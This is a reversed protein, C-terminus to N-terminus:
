IEFGQGVKISIFNKVYKEKFAKQAEYGSCHTPGVAEVGMKRFAEVIIQIIRKDKDMLHFGGFVLYIKDNPFGEKVKEVIKVIGPHSCGTIITLGNETKAVLAQEPMYSGKYEGAIEGTVFINKSVEVVKENEVLVGQLKKVKNKFEMSFNPCAYIVLDKKAKLLEWLGGAHDWHDHSLVVAEIRGIDIDLYKINELLWLGNEGTDFLIKNDVLFSVGWGTHLKKDNTDKDFLVKIWM